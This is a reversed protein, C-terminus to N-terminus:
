EAKEKKRIIIKKGNVIYLGTNPQNVRQGNMNYYRRNATTEPQCDMIVTTSEDIDFDLMRSSTSAKTHLYARNARLMAGETTALYFGVGEAESSLIYNTYDGDTKSVKTDTYVGVMENDTLDTYMKDTITFPVNHTGATESYLVVGANAPVIGDEFKKLVVKNGEAKATYATINTGSFDM